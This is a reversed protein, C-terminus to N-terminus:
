LDPQLAARKGGSSFSQCPPGAVMMYVEGDFRRRSRLAAGTLNSVDGEILDLDPRNARITQCFRRDIENALTAHLGVAELGLDLGM